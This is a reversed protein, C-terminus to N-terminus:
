SIRIEAKYNKVDTAPRTMIEVSRRKFRRGNFRFVSRTVDEIIFKGSGPNDTAPQLCRGFTELVIQKGQITLSKLGCGYALSGTEYRWLTKLKGKLISYVYILTSGGDCSVGCQIHSLRVVAEPTQDGTVDTYYVDGYVFWGREGTRYDYVQEGDKLKLNVRKGTSFRYRGYFRNTFDVHAFAQPVKQNATEEAATNKRAENKVPPVLAPRQVVPTAENKRRSWAYRGAVFGACILFVLLIVLM